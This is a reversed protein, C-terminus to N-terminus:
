GRRARGSRSRKQLKHLLAEGEERVPSILDQDSLMKRLSSRISSTAHGNTIDIKAIDLLMETIGVDAASRFWKRALKVRGQRLYISGINAAAVGDGATAARKYLRLALATSRRVGIGSQHQNGLSTMASSHGHKVCLRWLKVGESVKGSDILRDGEAWLKDLQAPTTKM